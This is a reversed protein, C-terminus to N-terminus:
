LNLGPFGGPLMGKTLEEMKQKSAEEAKELARNVAAIVLDELMEKDDPNVLDKDIDMGVLEKKGNVKVNVMGGGADAEVILEELEGQLVKMKSQMDQVKGFLDAM